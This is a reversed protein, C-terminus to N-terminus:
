GTEELWDHLLARVGTTFPVAGGHSPHRLAPVDSGLARAAHNGVAAIHRPNLLAILEHLWREGARTETRTPARNSHVVGDRRPHTPVLNWLAVDRRWPAIARQVITASPESWGLPHRSSRRLAAEEDGFQRECYLSLGSYRAGRWGAAEGVLLVRADRRAALYAVVNRRRIAPAELGCDDGDSERYQNFTDGIDAGAISDVFRELRANGHIM